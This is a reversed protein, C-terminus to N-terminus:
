IIKKNKNFIKLFKSTNQTVKKLNRNLNISSGLRRITILILLGISLEISALGLLLFTLGFCSIEDVISGVIASILYLIIWIIESLLILNYLNPNILIFSLLTLWFFLNIFSLWTLM